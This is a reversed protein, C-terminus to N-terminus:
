GKKVIAICAPDDWGRYDGKARAEEEAEEKSSAWVKFYGLFVGGSWFSVLFRIV